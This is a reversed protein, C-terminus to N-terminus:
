IAGIESELAVSVMTAVAQFFGPEHYRINHKKCVEKVLTRAEGGSRKFETRLFVEFLHM